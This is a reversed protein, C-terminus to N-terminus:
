VEAKLIGEILPLKMGRTVSVPDTQRPREGLHRGPTGANEGPAHGKVECTLPRLSPGLEEKGWPQVEESGLQLSLDMRLGLVMGLGCSSSCVPDCSKGVGGQPETRVEPDLRTESLRPERIGSLQIGVNRGM